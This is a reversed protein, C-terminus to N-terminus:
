RASLFVYRNQVKPRSQAYAVATEKVAEIRQKKLEHEDKYKTVHEFEWQRNTAKSMKEGLAMAESYCKAEPDIQVLYEYAKAAGTATPDAAWEGKAKALLRNGQYNMNDTYIQMALTNAENYGKCCSPISALYFLAEDYDRGRMAKKANNIYTRYNADYYDVIKKKGDSIFAVLKSNSADIKQLARTYAQQDSAGVGTLDFSETAFVKEEDADGIYLTLTTKIYVKQSPGGSVDNFVDDFRGAIFFRSDYPTSSLGAKSIAQSLKAELKKNIAQPVVDGKTIDAVSIDIACENQAAAKPALTCAFILAMYKLAKM